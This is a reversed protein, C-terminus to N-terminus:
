KGQRLSQLIVAMSLVCIALSFFKPLGTLYGPELLFEIM